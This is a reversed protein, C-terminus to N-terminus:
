SGIREQSSFTKNFYGSITNYPNRKLYTCPSSAKNQLGDVGGALGQGGAKSLWVTGCSNGSLSESGSPGLAGRSLPHSQSNAEWSSCSPALSLELAGAPSRKKLTEKLCIQVRGLERTM